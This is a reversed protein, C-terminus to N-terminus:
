PTHRALTGWDAMVVKSFTYGKPQSPMKASTGGTDGWAMTYPLLSSPKENHEM